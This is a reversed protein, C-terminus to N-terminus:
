SPIQWGIPVFAAMGVHSPLHVGREEQDSSNTRPHRYEKIALPLGLPRMVQALLPRNLRANDRGPTALLLLLLSTQDQGQSQQQQATPQAGPVFCSVTMTRRIVMDHGEDSEIELSSVSEVAAEKTVQIPAEPEISVEPEVAVEPQVPVHAQERRHLSVCEVLEDWIPALKDLYTCQLGLDCAEGVIFRPPLFNAHRM